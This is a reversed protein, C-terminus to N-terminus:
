PTDDGEQDNRRARWYPYLARRDDAGLAGWVGTTAQGHLRLEWELCENQVQCRQCLRAALERDATDNGTLAPPDGHTFVWLCLGDRTVIEALVDDPVAALHDLSTAIDALPDHPNVM